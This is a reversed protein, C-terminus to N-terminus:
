PEQILERTLEVAKDSSLNVTAAWPLYGPMKLSVVHAGTPLKITCDTRGKYTGDIYVEAGNPQSTIVIYGYEITPQEITPKPGSTAPPSVLPKKRTPPTDSITVTASPESGKKYGFTKGGNDSPNVTVTWREGPTTLRSSVSRSNRLGTRVAGNKYWRIQTGNEDDKDKDSFTYYVTLKDAEKPAKPSIAVNRVKPLRNFKNVTFYVIETDSLEIGSAGTSTAKLQLKHAGADGFDTPWEVTAGIVNGKNATIPKVTVRGGTNLLTARPTVPDGDPDSLYFTVIATETEDIENNAIVTDNSVISVNSIEPPNDENPSRRGRLYFGGYITVVTLTIVIISIVLRRSRPLKRGCRFCYVADKPNDTWCWFCRM